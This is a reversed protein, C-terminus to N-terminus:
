GAGDKLMQKHAAVIQASTEAMLDLVDRQSLLAADRQIALRCDPATAPRSLPRPDVMLLRARASARM